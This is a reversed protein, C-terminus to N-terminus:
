VVLDLGTAPHESAIGPPGDHAAALEFLALALAKRHPAPVHAVGDEVLLMVRRTSKARNM